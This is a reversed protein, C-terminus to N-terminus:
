PRSWQSYIASPRDQKRIPGQRIWVRASLAAATRSTRNDAMRGDSTM